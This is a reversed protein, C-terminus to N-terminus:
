PTNNELLRFGGDETLRNWNDELLRNRNHQEAQRDGFIDHLFNKKVTDEAFITDIIM